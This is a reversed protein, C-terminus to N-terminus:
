HKHQNNMPKKGKGKPPYTMHAKPGYDYAYYKFGDPSNIKNIYAGYKKSITGTYNDVRNRLDTIAIRHHSCTYLASLDGTKSCDKDDYALMYKLNTFEIMTKGDWGHIVIDGEITCPLTSSRYPVSFHAVMNGYQMSSSMKNLDFFNKAIKYVDDKTKYDLYYTNSYFNKKAKPSTNAGNAAIQAYAGVPLILM